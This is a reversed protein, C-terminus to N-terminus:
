PAVTRYREAWALALNVLTDSGKNQIARSKAREAPAANVARGRCGALMLVLGALLSMVILNPQRSM